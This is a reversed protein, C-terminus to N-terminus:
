EDAADSTYLLCITVQGLNSVMPLGQPRRAAIVAQEGMEEGIAFVSQKALAAVAARSGHGKKPFGAGESGKETLASIFSIAANYRRSLRLAERDPGNSQALQSKLLASETQLIELLESTAKSSAPHMGFFSRLNAELDDRSFLLGVIEDTQQETYSATMM